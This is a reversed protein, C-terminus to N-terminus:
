YGDRSRQRMMAGLRERLDDLENQLHLLEADKRAIARSPEQRTERKPAEAALRIESAASVLDSTMTQFATITEKLASTLMRTDESPGTPERTAVAQRPPEHLFRNAAQGILHVAEVFKTFEASREPRPSPEAELPPVDMQMRPRHPVPPLDQRPPEVRRQRIQEQHRKLISEIQSSFTQDPEAPVETRAALLRSELEALRRDLSEAIQRTAPQSDPGEDDALYDLLSRRNM